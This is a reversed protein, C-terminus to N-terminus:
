GTTKSAPRSTGGSGVLKLKRTSSPLFAPCDFLVHQPSGVDEQCFPCLPEEDYVRARRDSMWLGGCAANLVSRAAHDKQGALKRMAKITPGDLGRELGQFDPRRAVVEAMTRCHSALVVYYDADEWRIRGRPTDFGEVVPHWELRECLTQLHRVPGRGRRGLTASEWRADTPSGTNDLSCLQRGRGSPTSILPSKRTLRLAGSHAELAGYQALFNDEHLLSKHNASTDAPCGKLSFCAPVM